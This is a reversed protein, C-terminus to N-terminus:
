RSEGYLPNAARERVARQSNTGAGPARRALPLAPRGPRHRKRAIPTDRGLEASDARALAGLEANPRRLGPDRLTRRSVRVGSSVLRLATVRAIGLWETGFCDAEDSPVGVLPAM